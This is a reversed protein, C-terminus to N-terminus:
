DKDGVNKLLQTAAVRLDKTAKGNCEKVMEDALKSGIPLPRSKIDEFLTSFGSGLFLLANSQIAHQLANDFSMAPM